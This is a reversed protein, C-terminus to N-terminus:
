GQGALHQRIAYVVPSAVEQPGGMIEELATRVRRRSAEGHRHAPLSLESGEVDVNISVLSAFQAGTIERGLVSEVYAKSPPM